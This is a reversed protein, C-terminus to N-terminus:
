GSKEMQDGLMAPGGCIGADHPMGETFHVAQLLM